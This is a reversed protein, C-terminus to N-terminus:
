QPEDKDESRSQSKSQGEVAVKGAQKFVWCYRITHNATKDSTQYTELTDIIKSQKM